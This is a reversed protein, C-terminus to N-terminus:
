AIGGVRSQVAGLVIEAALAIAGIAIVGTWLQEPQNAQLGTTIYEGLGGAGIFSALVASGIVETAATRLGTFLIPFALPWEVRRLQQRTTMGMGRAAELVAPPVSRFALDTNILVPATALLTLAAFAPVFGVGFLPLMFTLVALSPVVRAINGLALIPTRLALVHSTVIGLPIGVAAGAALAAAALVLYAVAHSALDPWNVASIM